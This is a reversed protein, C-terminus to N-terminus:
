GMREELFRALNGPVGHRLGEQLLERALAARGRKRAEREVLYREYDKWWIKGDPTYFGWWQALPGTLFLTWTDPWVLTIAHRECARRYAISGPGRYRGRTPEIDGVFSPNRELPRAEIYGGRLVVSVFDRPHDHLHRDVDPTAIHHVRAAFREGAVLVYREMYLSGDAHYLHGQDYPRRKAREIIADAIARSV